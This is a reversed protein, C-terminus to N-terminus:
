WSPGRASSSGQPGALERLRAIDATQRAGDGPTELILALERFEPRSVIRRFGEIGIRGDGIDAHQDRREGRGFVSDNAHFAGVRDLTGTARLEEVLEDVGGSSDLAYGAAFLHCTDLCLGISPEGAADLLTSSEGITSAIATAAGEEPEILLRVAPSIRAADALSRAARAFAEAPDGGATLGAHVVVADAGLREAAGMTAALLARSRELFEPNVAAINVLYPVHAILPTFGAARWAARFASAEDEGISPHAWGRPNSLFVQACDGGRRRVEEVTGHTESSRRRVHAGFRV